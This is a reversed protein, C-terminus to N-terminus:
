APRLGQEHRDQSGYCVETGGKIDQPLALVEHTILVNDVIARGLVFASQNESILKDMLPQLRRTFLKSYIKYYVNCLAIPRYDSVKQPNTIKPILRIHTNNINEPLPEGDFFGQVERVIDPRVKEWHTHFFGASFGDPRPAKEANISFTAERIEEASPIATLRINDEDTM